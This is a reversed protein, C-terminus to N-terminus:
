EACIATMRREPDGGPVYSRAEVCQEGSSRKKALFAVLFALLRHLDSRVTGSQAAWVDGRFWQLSVRRAAAFLLIELPFRSRLYRLNRRVDPLPM